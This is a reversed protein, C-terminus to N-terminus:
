DDDDDDDNIDTWEVSGCGEMGEVKVRCIPCSQRIVLWNRACERHFCHLCPLLQYRDGEVPTDVFPELCIVCQHRDDSSGGLNSNSDGCDGYSDNTSLTCRHQRTMTHRRIGSRRYQRKLPRWVSRYFYKTFTTPRALDGFLILWACGIEIGYILGHALGWLMILDVCSSETSSSHSHSSSSSSSYVIGISEMSILGLMANLLSEVSDVDLGHMLLPLLRQKWLAHLVGFISGLVSCCLVPSAHLTRVLLVPRTFFEQLFKTVIVCLVVIGVAATLLSMVIRVVLLLVFTVSLFILIPMFLAGPSQYKQAYIITTTNNNSSSSTSTSTSSSSYSGTAYRRRRTSPGDDDSLADFLTYSNIDDSGRGRSSSSSAPRRNSAIYTNGYSNNNRRTATTPSSPSPLWRVRRRAQRISNDNLSSFSSSSNRDHNNRRNDNRRQEFDEEYDNSDDDDDDGDEDHEDGIDSRDNSGNDYYREEDSDDGFIVTEIEQAVM